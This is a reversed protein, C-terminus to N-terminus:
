TFGAVLPPPTAHAGLRRILAEVGGFGDAEAAELLHIRVGPVDRIADWTAADIRAVEVEQVDEGEVIDADSVDGVGYRAKLGRSWTLSRKGKMHECYHNWLARDSPRQKTAIDDLIEFPTRHGGRGRKTSPASAELGLKQLYNSHHCHTIRVGHERLPVYEHGVVHEVHRAWQEHIWTELEALEQATPEHELLLLQHLHPHWGNIGHTIELARIYGSVGVRDLMRRWPSGRMMRRWAEAFGRELAALDDGIGHRITWTVMVVRSAGHGEVVRQVEDARRTRIHSSCVPCAWVSGCKMLGDFHAHGDVSAIRVQGGVRVRGCGSVRRDGREYAMPRGTDQLRYWWARAPRRLVRPPPLSPRCQDHDKRSGGVAPRKHPEPREPDGDFRGHHGESAATLAAAARPEAMSAPAQVEVRSRAGHKAHAIASPHEAPPEWEPNHGPSGPNKGATPPPNYVSSM